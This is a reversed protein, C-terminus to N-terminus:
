GSRPSTVQTMFADLTGLSVSCLKFATTSCSPDVCARSAYVRAIVKCLRAVLTLTILFPTFNKIPTTAVCELSENHSAVNIRVPNIGGLRTYM